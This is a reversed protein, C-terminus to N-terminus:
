NNCYNIAIAFIIFFKLLHDYSLVNTAGSVYKVNLPVSTNYIVTGAYYNIQCKYTGGCNKNANSIKLATGNTIAMYNVQDTTIGPVPM